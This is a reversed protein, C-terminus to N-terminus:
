WIMSLVTDTPPSNWPSCLQSNESSFYLRGNLMSPFVTSPIDESLEQWFKIEHM